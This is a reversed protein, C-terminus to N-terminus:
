PQPVSFSSSIQSQQTQSVPSIPSQTPLKQPHSLPSPPLPIQNHSHLHPSPPLSTPPPTSNDRIELATLNVIGAQFAHGNTPVVVIRNNHTITFRRLQTIQSVPESVEGVARFVFATDRFPVLNVHPTCLPDSIFASSFRRRSLSLSEVTM